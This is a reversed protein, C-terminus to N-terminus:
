PSLFIKLEYLQELFSKIVLPVYFLQRDLPSLIRSNLSNQWTKDEPFYNTNLRICLALESGSLLLLNLNIFIKRLYPYSGQIYADLFSIPNARSAETFSDCLKDPGLM